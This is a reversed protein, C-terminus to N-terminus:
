VFIFCSHKFTKSGTVPDPVPVQSNYLIIQIKAIAVFIALYSGFGGPDTILPAERIRLESDPTWPGLDTLIRRIRFQGSQSWWWLEFFNDLSRRVYNLRSLGSIESFV